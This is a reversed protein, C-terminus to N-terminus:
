GGVVVVVRYSGRDGTCPMAEGCSTRSATIAATGPAVARFVGTVTGCGQGPVCGPSPLVSPTGVQSLVDANSSGEISWYTSALVVQVTSGPTVHVTGGKDADGVTVTRVPVPTSAGGSTAATKACGSLMLTVAAAIVAVLTFSRTGAASM